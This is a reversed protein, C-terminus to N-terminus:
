EAGGETKEQTPQVEKAKAYTDLTSGITGSLYAQKFSDFSNGFLAKVDAPLADFSAVMKNHLAEYEHINRPMLTTDVVREGDANFHSIVNERTDVLMKGIAKFDIDDASQQIMDQLNVEGNAVRRPCGYKEDYVYKWSIKKECGNNAPFQEIVKPISPLNILKVSMM